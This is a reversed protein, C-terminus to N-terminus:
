LRIKQGSIADVITVGTGFAARMEFLEEESYKRNKNAERYERAFEANQREREKRTAEYNIETIGAYELMELLDNMPCRGNSKWTAVGNEDINMRKIDEIAKEVDRKASNEWYHDNPEGTRKARERDLFGSIEQEFRTM